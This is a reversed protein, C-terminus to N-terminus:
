KDTFPLISVVKVQATLVDRKEQAVAVAVYVYGTESTTHDQEAVRGSVCLREKAGAIQVNSGSRYLFQTM